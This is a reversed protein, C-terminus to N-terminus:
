PILMISSFPPRTRSMWSAPPSPCTRSKWWPVGPETVCSGCITSAASRPRVASPSTSALRTRRTTAARRTARDGVHDGVHLLHEVVEADLPAHGGAPGAAAARGPWPPGAARASPPRARSRRAHRRVVGVAQVEQGAHALLVDLLEAGRELALRCQPGVQLRSSGPRRSVSPGPMMAAHRCTSGSTSRASSVSSSPSASAALQCSPRRVPRRRSARRRGANVWGHPKSRSAIVTGVMTHCPVSSRITGNAWPSQSASWTAPRWM